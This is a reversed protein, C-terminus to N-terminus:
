VPPQAATGTSAHRTAALEGQLRVLAGPRRPRARAWTEGADAALREALEVRERLPRDDRPARARPRRQRLARPQRGHLAPRRAGGRRARGPETEPAPVGPASSSPPSSTSSRACRRSRARRPRALRLRRRGRAAAGQARPAARSALGPRRPLRGRAGGARDQDGGLARAGAGRTRAEADGFVHPHRRVLKDHVGRAVDELDGTARSRSSCRSSSSRSSCTASSTSSSRRITRSRARGRGRLGGRGHAPRDHARDARSGLPVGRRLRRTLEQLEGLPGDAGSAASTVGSTTTTAPRRRRRRPPEFGARTSHGQGQVGERRGRGVDNVADNKKQELSSRASRTRRGPRVADVSGAKVAALPQILHYGFQDQGAPLARQTELSFAAKDFPPSPRARPSRSSAARRGELRPGALEAERARRLREGAKLSSPASGDDAEAKTKSSSTASPARSPFRTAAGQEEDYYAKVDADTVKM